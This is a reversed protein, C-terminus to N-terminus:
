WLNSFRLCHASKLYKAADTNPPHRRETCDQGGRIQARGPDAESEDVATRRGGGDERQRANGGASKRFDVADRGESSPAAYRGPFGAAVDDVDYAPESELPAMLLHREFRQNGINKRQGGKRRKKKQWKAKKRPAKQRKRFVHNGKRFDGVDRKEELASRFLALNRCRDDPVIRAINEQLIRINTKVITCLTM